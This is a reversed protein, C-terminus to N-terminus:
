DILNINKANIFVAGGSLIAGEPFQVKHIVKNESSSRSKMWLVSRSCEPISMIGSFGYPENKFNLKCELNDEDFCHCIISLSDSSSLLIPDDDSFPIVWVPGNDFLLVQINDITSINWKNSGIYYYKQQHEAEAPIIERKVKATGGDITVTILMNHESLEPIFSIFSFVQDGGTQAFISQCFLALVLMSQIYINKM